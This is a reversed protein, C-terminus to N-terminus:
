NEQQGTGNLYRRMYDIHPKEYIRNDYILIGDKGQDYMNIIKVWEDYRIDLNLKKAIELQKPHIYLKGDFGLSMSNNIARAIVEENKYELTITDYVECRHAKAICIIYEKIPILLEEKNDMNVCSCYDEAGFAIGKVTGINCLRKLNMLGVPTEILLIFKINEFEDSLELVKDSDECKPLMFWKIGCKYLKRIEQKANDANIRVAYHQYDKIETLKDMLLELANEKETRKISDELDFIILDADFERVKGIYKEKCPVFLMKKMRVNM